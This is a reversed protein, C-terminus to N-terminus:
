STGNVYQAWVPEYTKEMRLLGAPDGASEYIARWALNTRVFVAGGIKQGDEEVMCIPLQPEDLKKISYRMLICNHKRDSEEVTHIIGLSKVNEDPSLVMRGSDIIGELGEFLIDKFDEFHKGVIM